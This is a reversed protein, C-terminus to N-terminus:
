NKLKQLNKNLRLYVWRKQFRRVVSFRQTESRALQWYHQETNPVSIRCLFSKPTVREVWGVLVPAITTAHAATVIIICACSILAKMKRDEVINRRRGNHPSPIAGTDERDIYRLGAPEKHTQMSRRSINSSDQTVAYPYPKPQPPPYCKIVALASNDFPEGEDNYSITFIVLLAGMVFLTAIVVSIAIRRM